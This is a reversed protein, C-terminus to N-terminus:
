APLAEPILQETPPAAFLHERTANLDRAAADVDVGVFQGDWVRWTGDVMVATVDDAGSQLVVHTASECAGRGFPSTRLVVLDACKGPSLSGLQDGVGLAMAADLSAFGLVDRAGLTPIGPVREQRGELREKQADFYRQFQLTFRMQTFMDARAFPVIDNGITVGVGRDHARAVVNFNHGMGIELEPTASIAGGHRALLELEEDSVKNAHVPLIDGGLLGASELELLLGYSNCHITMPLGLERAMAVERANVDIEVYEMDSLALMMRIRDSGESIRELVRRADDLRQEHSTFHGDPKARVSYAHWARIGADEVADVAADAHAPTGVCHCFDVVTTVGRRLLELAGIYGGVYMDSPRMRTRYTLVQTFYEGIWLESALGRLPTEWLHIHTDILGPMVICGSLDVVEDAPESSLDPGIAVISGGAILLDGRPVDGLEPDMTLLEAHRLLKRQMTM